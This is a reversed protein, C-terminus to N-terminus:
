RWMAARAVNNEQQQQGGVAMIMAGWGGTLDASAVMRLKLGGCM